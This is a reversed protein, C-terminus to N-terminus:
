ISRRMSRIPANHGHLSKGGDDHKGNDQNKQTDGKISCTTRFLANQPLAACTPPTEPADDRALGARVFDPKVYSRANGAIFRHLSDGLGQGLGQLLVRQAGLIPAFIKAHANASFIEVLM